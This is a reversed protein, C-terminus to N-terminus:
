YPSFTILQATPEKNIVRATAFCFTNPFNQFV